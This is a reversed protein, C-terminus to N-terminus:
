KKKAKLRDLSKKIYAEADPTKCSTKGHDVEVKGIRRSAAIAKKHLEPRFVGIAIVVGNMNHRARNPTSHIEKEITRLINLCEKKSIDANIHLLGSFTSYGCAKIFEKKSDMWKKSIKETFSTKAILGSLMDSLGYFNISKIWKNATTMTMKSPDAIMTALAQADTNGTDWLKLALDHDIKIKKQLAKLNAFSVGFLNDGAGHNKYIKINQATGMKKLETMLQNFTM